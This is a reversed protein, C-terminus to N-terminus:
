KIFNKIMHLKSPPIFFCDRVGNDHDRQLTEVQVLHGDIHNFFLYGHNKIISELKDEICHYLTECIIIPQFKRISEEAGELIFNETGETDIKIIDIGSFSNELLLSDLMETKVSYVVKSSDEILSGIGGLNYKLYSYKRNKVEYFDVTGSHNSLAIPYVSITKELDNLQINNKLYFLPGQAPEFAIVKIKRNLIAALLSYYGTNAGIDIFVACKSILSKFIPTYEFSDPGKWYLLKTVYSTQNTIMKLDADERVKIKITGSPPLQFKTIPSFLKNIWRLTPNISPHYIIKYFTQL